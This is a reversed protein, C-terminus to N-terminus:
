GLVPIGAFGGPLLQPWPGQDCLTHLAEVLASLVQEACCQRVSSQLSTMPRWADIWHLPEDSPTRRVDLTWRPYNLFCMHWLSKVWNPHYVCVPNIHIHWFLYIYICIYIHELSVLGRGGGWGLSIYGIHLGCFSTFCICELKVGEGAM